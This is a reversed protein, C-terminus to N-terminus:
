RPSNTANMTKDRSDVTKGIVSSREVGHFGSVPRATAAPRSSLPGATTVIAAAINTLVLSQPQGSGPAHSNTEAASLDSTKTPDALRAAGRSSRFM